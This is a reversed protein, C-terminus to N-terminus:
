LDKEKEIWSCLREYCELCLDVYAFTFRGDESLYRRSLTYKTYQHIPQYSKGCRDCKYTKM